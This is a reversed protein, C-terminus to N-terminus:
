PCFKLQTKVNNSVWSQIPLKQVRVNFLFFTLNCQQAKSIVKLNVESQVNFTDLPFNQWIYKGCVDWCFALIWSRTELFLFTCSLNLESPLSFFAVVCCADTVDAQPYSPGNALRGSDAPGVATKSWQKQTVTKAAECCQKWILEHSSQPSCDPGLTLGRTM